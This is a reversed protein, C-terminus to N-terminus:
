FFFPAILRTPQLFRPTPGATLIRAPGAPPAFDANFENFYNLRQSSSVALPTPNLANTWPASFPANAYYGALPSGAASGPFVGFPAAYEAPNTAPKAAVCALLGLALIIWQLQS